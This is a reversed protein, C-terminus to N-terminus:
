KPMGLRQRTRSVTETPMKPQGPVLQDLPRATATDQGRATRRAREQAALLEKGRKGDICRHLDAIIPDVLWVSVLYEERPWSHNPTM